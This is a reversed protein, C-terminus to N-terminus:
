CEFQCSPPPSHFCRSVSTCSFAWQYFLAQPVAPLSPTSSLPNIIYCLSTANLPFLLHSGQSSPLGRNTTVCQPRSSLCPRRMTAGRRRWCVPRWRQYGVRSPCISWATFASASVFVFFFFCNRLWCCKWGLFCKTSIIQQRFTTTRPSHHDAHRYRTLDVQPQQKHLALAFRLAKKCLLPFHAPPEM